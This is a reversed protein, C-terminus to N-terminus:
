RESRTEVVVRVAPSHATEQTVTWTVPDRPGDGCGLWEAIQDRVHKASNTANDSDLADPAVRVMTVAWPGRPPIRGHLAAATTDRHWRTRRHRAMHHERANAESALELPLTVAM